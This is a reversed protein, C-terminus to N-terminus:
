QQGGHVQLIAYTDLACVIELAANDTVSEIRTVAAPRGNVEILTEPLTRVRPHTTLFHQGDQSILLLYELFTTCSSACYSCPIHLGYRSNSALWSPLTDPGFRQVHNEKGCFICAVTPQTIAQGYFGKAWTIVRNLAVKYSKISTLLGPIKNYNYVKQGDPTCAPCRLTFIGSEAQIQGFLRRRGCLTCWIRTEEWIGSRTFTYPAIEQQMHRTLVRRLALKGRQLRMAATDTNTGLRAAIEALPSEEVYRKILLTRTEPPLLAMARDLLEVLEKHELEVEVDFSDALVEELAPQEVEGPPSPLPLHALEKARQRRWRLCINRAIGALWQAQKSVDRLEHLHKWAELLTEQALDEAADPHGSLTACLRVIRAHEQASLLGNITDRTYEPM